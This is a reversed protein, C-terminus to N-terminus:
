YMDTTSVEKGVIGAHHMLKKPICGVNACTGGIGWTNGHPSPLVGDVLAVRAGHERAAKSCSTGASGGGIVILDY